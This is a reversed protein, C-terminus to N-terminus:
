LRDLNGNVLLHTVIMEIFAIVLLVCAFLCALVFAWVGRFGRTRFFHGILAIPFVFILGLITWKGIVLGFTRADNSCGNVLLFVLRVNLAIVLINGPNPNIALVLGVLMAWGVFLWLMSIATKQPSNLIRNSDETVVSAYPNIQLAPEDM